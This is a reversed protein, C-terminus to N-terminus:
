LVHRLHYFFEVELQLDGEEGDAKGDFFGQLSEGFVGLRDVGSRQQMQGSCFEITQDLPQDLAPQGAERKESSASDLSAKKGAKGQIRVKPPHSSSDGEVELSDQQSFVSSAQRNGEASSLKQGDVHRGCPGDADRRAPVKERLGIQEVQFPGVDEALDRQVASGLFGQGGIQVELAQVVQHRGTGLVDVSSARREQGM